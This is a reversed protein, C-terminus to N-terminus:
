LVNRQGHSRGRDLADNSRRVKPGWSDPAPGRDLAGQARRAILRAVERRTYGGGLRTAHLGHRVARRVGRFASFHDDDFGSRCGVRTAADCPSLRNPMCSSESTATAALVSASPESTQSVLRKLQFTLGLNDISTEFAARSGASGYTRQKLM